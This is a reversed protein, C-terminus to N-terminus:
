GNHTGQYIALYESAVRSWSLNERAWAAAATGLRGALAGNKAISALAKSLSAEDGNPVLVGREPSLVEAVGGVDFSVIALGSAMAELLSNPLGEFRSSIILCNAQRYYHPMDSYPIQGCFKVKAEQKRCYDELEKRMPGDGIVLLEIGPIEKAAKTFARLALDPGKVAALRGVFLFVFPHAPNRGNLFSADVGNYIVKVKHLSASRADTNPTPVASQAGVLNQALTSSATTVHDVRVAVAKTLWTIFKGGAGSLDSGLISLVVPKLALDKAQNAEKHGVVFGVSARLADRWLRPIFILYKLALAVAGCFGWYAHIVDTQSASRFATFLMALFLLPAQLIALPRSQLNPIVGAGYALIQGSRWPWYRCRKVVLNPGDDIPQAAMHDPAVVTIQHGAKAIELAAQRVFHGAM